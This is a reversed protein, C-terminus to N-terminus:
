CITFQLKWMATKKIKSKKRSNFKTLLFIINNKMLHLCLFGNDDEELIYDNGDFYDIVVFSKNNEIYEDILKSAQRTANDISAIKSVGLGVVTKEILPLDIQCEYIRKNNLKPELISQGDEDVQAIWNLTKIVEKANIKKM